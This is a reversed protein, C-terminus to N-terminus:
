SLLRVNDGNYYVLFLLFIATLGSGPFCSSSCSKRYYSWLEKRTVIPEDYKRPSVVPSGISVTDDKRVGPSVPEPTSAPHSMTSYSRSPNGHVLPAYITGRDQSLFRLKTAVKRMDAQSARPPQCRHQSLRLHYLIVDDPIPEFDCGFLFYLSKTGPGPRRRHM